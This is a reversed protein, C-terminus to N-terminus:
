RGGRAAILAQGCQPSLSQANARLCAIARGGGLPVGSCLARFDGACSQRLLMMQERMPMPAAYQPSGTSQPAAPAPAASSSSTGGPATSAGVARVAQQCAPSLSTVNRQLCDFAARGAAQVNSCHARYDAPCAQRIANQQAQSAQQAAAPAALALILALGPPIQRLRRYVLSAAM